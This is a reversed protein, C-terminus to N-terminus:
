GDIVPEFLLEAAGVHRRLALLLEPGLDAGAVSVVPHRDAVLDAVLSPDVRSTLDIAYPVDAGQRYRELDISTPQGSVTYRFLGVGVSRLKRQLSGVWHPLEVPVDIVVIVPRDTAEALSRVLRDGNRELRWSPESVIGARDTLAVVEASALETTAQLRHVIAAALPLPGVVATRSSGAPVFSALEARVRDLRRWFVPRTDNPATAASARDRTPAVTSGSTPPPDSSPTPARDLSRTNAQSEVAAPAPGLAPAPPVPTAMSAAGGDAVPGQRTRRLQLDDEVASAADLRRELLALFRDRGPDSSPPIPGGFVPEDPEPTPTAAPRPALPQDGEVSSGETAPGDGPARDALRAPPEEDTGRRAIAEAITEDEDDVVNPHRVVGPALAPEVTRQGGAAAPDSSESPEKSGNSENPENPENSANSPKATDGDPDVIVEFEERCFFGAVGGSRIRNVAAIAAEEGHETVVRDLLDGLEPGSFRLQDQKSLRNSM